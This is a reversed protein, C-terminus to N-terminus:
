KKKVEKTEEQMRELTAAETEEDIFPLGVVRRRENVLESLLKNLETFKDELFKNLTFHKIEEPKKGYNEKKWRNEEDQMRGIVKNLQANLNFIIKSYAVDFQNSAERQRKALTTTFENQTLEKFRGWYKVCTNYSHKTQVSAQYPGVNMDFYPRLERAIAEQEVKPHSYRGAM